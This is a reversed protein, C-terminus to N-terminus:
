VSSYAYRFALLLHTVNQPAQIDTIDRTLFTDTVDSTVFVVGQIDTVDSTLYPVSAM